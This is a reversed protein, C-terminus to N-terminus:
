DISQSASCRGCPRKKNLPLACFGWTIRSFQACAELIPRTGSRTPTELTLLKRYREARAVLINGLDVAHISNAANHAGAPAAPSFDANARMSCPVAAM